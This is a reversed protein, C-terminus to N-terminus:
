DCRKENDSVYNLEGQCNNKVIQIFTRIKSIDKKGDTEVGSSVDVGWPRIETLLRVINESSLGGAIIVPFRATIEKAVNWNFVQGTGGFANNVQSDLLYSIKGESLVKQGKIIIQLVEESSTRNSIHITKIVPLEINQCYNLSENGSLQVMDLGVRSSISNVENVPQNVFVGVLAPRLKVSNLSGVIDVAKELSVLRRSPAFVLGLYDARFDACAQAEEISSIGCIKIQTM